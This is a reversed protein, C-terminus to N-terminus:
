TIAGIAMAMAWRVIYLLSLKSSPSITKSGLSLLRIIIFADNCVGNKM